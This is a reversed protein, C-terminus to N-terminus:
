SEVGTSGFGGLGRSTEDLSDVQVTNVVLYPQIIMQAIRDGPKVYFVESGFNILVVGIEGRYDCDIVGALVDIGKKVALGSRPRISGFFNQPIAVSVGTKILAREGPNVWTEHAARLDLGASFESGYSLGSYDQGSSAFTDTYLIKM